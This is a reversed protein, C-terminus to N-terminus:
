KSAKKSAQKSAQKKTRKNTQKIAQKHTAKFLKAKLNNTTTKKIYEIQKYKTNKSKPM